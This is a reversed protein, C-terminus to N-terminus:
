AKRRRRRLVLLGGIALLSMTAPEPTESAPPEPAPTATWGWEARLTAFDDLDVDGDGDFDCSQDPARMGLQTEFLALDLEDVTGDPVGGPGTADGPHPAVVGTVLGKLVVYEENVFELIPNGEGDVDWTWPEPAGVPSEVTIKALDATAWQGTIPDPAVGDIKAGDIAWFLAVDVGNADDLDADVLQITFGGAMDVSGMVNVRDGIAVMTGGGDVDTEVNSSFTWELTATDSLALNTFFADGSSDGIDSLGGGGVLTDSIAITVNDTAMVATSKVMSGVGLTLNTLTYNTAASDFTATQNAAVSIDGLRVPSTTELALTATSDFVVHTDPQNVSGSDALAIGAGGNYITAIEEATLDREWIAVQDMLGAFRTNNHNNGIRVDLSSATSIAEGLSASHTELAGDVYILMQNVNTAGDPLVMVVHHWADNSVNTTGVIYGGNVESRIGGPTGNGSQTRFGWKQGTADTGWSLLAGDQDATKIWAATTRAQTGTVGKYGVVNVVDDAGDFQLAGGVKGAVWQSDDGPFSALTGDHGGTPSSDAASSGTTEDFEWIAALDAQPFASTHITATGGTLTMTRAAHLDAGSIAVTDGASVSADLSTGIKVRESVVLPNVSADMAGGNLTATAVTLSGGALDVSGGTMQLDTVGAAATTNVTAGSVSLTGVSGSGSANLVGGAANIQAIAPSALTTTGGTINITDITGTSGSLNTTGATNLTTANLEGGATLSAGSAVNVEDGVSMVGDVNLAAAGTVDASRIVELTGTAGVTFSGGSVALSLAADGGTRTDTVTVAGDAVRVNTLEMMSQGPVTGALWNADGYDGTFNGAHDWDLTPALYLFVKGAGANNRILMDGTSGWTPVASADINVETLFEGDLTAGLTGYNLLTYPVGGVPAAGDEELALTWGDELTLAGSASVTDTLTDWTYTASAEVNLDGTVAIEGSADVGPQLGRFVSIAGSVEGTGSATTISRLDAAAGTGALTLKTGAELTVDGLWPVGVNRDLAYDVAADFLEIGDPAPNDGLSISWWQAIQRSMAVRPATIGDDYLTDGVEYVAIVPQPVGFEDNVTAIIEADAGIDLIARRPTPGTDGYVTATGEAVRGALPHGADVIEITTGDALAKGESGWDLLGPGYAQYQASVIPITIDFGDGPDADLYETIGRTGNQNTSILLDYNALFAAKEDEASGSFNEDTFVDQDDKWTVTFTADTRGELHAQIFQETIRTGPVVNSIILVDYSAPAPAVFSPVNVILEGGTVNINSGSADVDGGGASITAAGLGTKNIAGGFLQVTGGSINADTSLAGLRSIKVNGGATLGPATMSGGSIDLSTLSALGGTVVTGGTINLDTATAAGTSTLSGSAVNVAAAQLSTSNVAAGDVVLPTGGSLDAEVNLVGGTANIANVAIAAGSVLTTEGGTVNLEGGGGAGLALDLTSAAGFTTTGSSNFNKDDNLTLTGGVVLTGGTYVTTDGQSQLVGDVTLAAGDMVHTNNAVTLDGTAGITASAGHVIFTHADAASALIAANNVSSDVVAAKTLGPLGNTWNGATSWVEGGAGAVDAWVTADTGVIVLQVKGAGDDIVSSGTIDILDAYPSDVPPTLSVNDITFGDGALVANLSGYSFLDYTGTLVVGSPDLEVIWNNSLDLAGSVTVKDGDGNWVLAGDTALAMDGTVDLQGTLGGSNLSINKATVDGTIGATAGSTVIQDIVSAAGLDVTSAGTLAVTNYIPSGGGTAWWGSQAPDGPNVGAGDINFTLFDGGTNETMGIAFRYPVGATLVVTETHPANWGEGTSLRSDSILDQPEDFEGDLDTDIWLAEYDDGHVYFTYTKTEPPIFRGEWAVTYTNSPNGPFSIQGTAIGDAGAVTQFYAPWSAHPTPTKGLVGGNVGDGDIGNDFDLDTGVFGDYFGFNLQNFKLGSITGPSSITLDGDVNLNAGIVAINGGNLAVTGNANVTGSLNLVGNVTIDASTTLTGEFEAAGSVALATSSNLAGGGKVKVSAMNPSTSNLTGSSVKLVDVNTMDAAATVDAGSVNLKTIDLLAGGGLGATGGTLDVTEATVSGGTVNLVSSSSLTTANIAGDSALSGTGSVNVTQSEIAGGAAVTVAGGTIDLTNSSTTVLTGTASVAVTGGTVSVSGSRMTADVNLNGSNVTTSAVVDLPNAVVVAGGDIDLSLAGMMGTHPADVTVTGGPVDMNGLLTPGSPAAPLWKGTTDSWDGITGDWTRDASAVLFVSNGNYWTNAADWDAHGSNVVNVSDLLGFSGAPTDGLTLTGEFQVLDYALGMTPAAAENITVTAGDELMVDGALVGANVDILKGISWTTNSAASAVFDGNIVITGSTDVTGAATVAGNVTGQGSISQFGAAGTGLGGDSDLTLESGAAMTLDGFSAEFGGASFITAVDEDSIAGRFVMVDDLLGQFYRGGLAQGIRFQDDGTFPLGPQEAVLEGDLYLRQDTGDYTGVWHHWNTTDNVVTSNTYAVDQGYFGMKFQTANYYGFHGSKFQVNTTSGFGFIMDNDGTVSRKAWACFSFSENGLKIGDAVDVYDGNGDLQLAGGYVGAGPVFQADGLLTGDKAGVSDVAITAGSAENFRYANMMGPIEGAPAITLHGGAQINLNPNNEILTSNTGTSFDAVGTVNVTAGDITLKGAAALGSDANVTGFLNVNGSVAV